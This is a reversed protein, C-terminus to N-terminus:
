ELTENFFKSVREIYEKTHTKYAEVHKVNPIIWLEDAPNGSAHFLRYANEVPVTTDAEGHIFYIRRPSIKKVYEVPRVSNLNMRFIANASLVVGPTFWNPLGSQGPLKLEIMERADSYGSDLVLSMIADEEVAALISSSAGMSFALIGIKSFGKEKLFDVAGLIDRKEYYGLSFREGQSKGWGRLDFMLISFGKKHLDRSLELMKIENNARHQGKGHVLILVKRDGGKQPIFWGSLKLEDERSKFIVDEYLLNVSEPTNPIPVRVTKTLKWAVYASIGFYLDGTIFLLLVLGFLLRKTLKFFNTLLKM